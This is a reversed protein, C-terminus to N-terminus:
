FIIFKYHDKNLITDKFGIDKRIALVCESFYEKELSYVRNVEEIPLKQGVLHNIEIKYQLYRSLAQLVDDSAWLWAVDYAKLFNEQYEIRKNEPIRMGIFVAMTNILNIYVNRKQNLKEQENSLELQLVNKLIEIEKDIEGKQKQLQDDFQSKQKQLGRNFLYTVILTFVALFAANTIISKLLDM